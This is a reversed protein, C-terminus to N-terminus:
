TIAKDTTQQNHLNYILAIVYFNGSGKLNLKKRINKRHTEVTVISISLESAIKLNKFGKGVYFLIQQERKTFSTDIRNNIETLKKLSQILIEIFEKNICISKIANLIIIFEKHNISHRKTDLTKILKLLETKPNKISSKM